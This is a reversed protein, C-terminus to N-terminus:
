GQNQAEPAQEPENGDEPQAPDDGGDYQEPETSAPQDEPEAAPQEAPEEAPQEAPQEGETGAEDTDSEEIIRTDIRTNVLIAKFHLRIKAKHFVVEVDSGDRRAIDYTWGAKLHINTVSVHTRDYSLEVAGADRVDYATTEPAEPATSTTTSSSTTTSPEAADDSEDSDYSAEDDDSDAESDYADGKDSDYADDKDSDYADDKEPEPADHEDAEPAVLIQTIVNVRVSIGELKVVLRILEEGSRFAVDVDDGSAQEVESVFGDAPDVLQVKLGLDTRLVTAEGADGAKFREKEGVDLSVLRSETTETEPKAHEPKAHKAKHHGNHHGHNHKFDRKPSDAREPLQVALAGASLSAALGTTALLKLIM